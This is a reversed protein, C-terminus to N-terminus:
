HFVRSGRTIKIVGDTFRDDQGSIGVDYLFVIGDLSCIPAREDPDFEQGAVLAREFQTDNRDTGDVVVFVEIHFQAIVNGIRSSVTISTCPLVAM